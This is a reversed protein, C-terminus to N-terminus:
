PTGGVGAPSDPTVDSLPLRVVFANENEQNTLTYYVRIAAPLRHQGAVGSDWDNVWQQGDYFEFRITEVDADMVSEFGGQTPDGDAPRQKRIFLGTREGPEGYATHSLAVETNGGQAGYQENLTEFDSDVNTLYAYSPALNAATFTLTDARGGGTNGGGAAASGGVSAVFFSYPDTEDGALWAAELLTRVRAEFSLRQSQERRARDLRQGYESGVVFGQALVGSVIGILAVALLLEVLSFGRRTM